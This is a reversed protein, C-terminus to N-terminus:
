GEKKGAQQSLASCAANITQHRMAGGLELLPQIADDPYGRLSEFLVLKMRNIERIHLPWTSRALEELHPLVEPDGIKALAEIIAQNKRIDSKFFIYRKLKEALDPALPAVKYKGALDVAQLFANKRGSRIMEKLAKHAQKDKFHLLTELAEQKLDANEYSLFQRLVGATKRADISRLLIILNRTFVPRAGDFRKCAEAAVDKKFHLFLGLLQDSLDPTDRGAYHKVLDPVINPGLHTLFNVGDKGAAAENNLFTLVTKSVYAPEMLTQISTVATTRIDKNETERLHTHLMKFITTLISFQSIELLAESIVILKDAFTRYEDAEIRGNMFAILLRAIKIDLHHNELTPLSAEVLFAAERGLADATQTKKEPRAPPSEEKPLAALAATLEGTKEKWSDPLAEGDVTKQILSQLGPSVAQDERPAQDLMDVVLSGPMQRLFDRAAPSDSRQNLHWFSVPLFQRRTAPDLQQLLSGWSKMDMAGGGQAPAQGDGATDSFFGSVASEYATVAADADLRNGGLLKALRAPDIQKLKDVSVAKDRDALTESILHYVFQAWLDDRNDPSKDQPRSVEEEETVKFKSYDVPQISINPLDADKATTKIGGQERVADPQQAILALFRYIEGHDLGNFLKVTAVDHQKLSRSFDRCAAHSPDLPLITPLAGPYEVEVMLSDGTIGLTLVPSKELLLNLSALVRSISQNVQDHEPPYSFVNKRCINLEVVIKLLHNLAPGSQQPTEEAGVSAPPNKKQDEAM